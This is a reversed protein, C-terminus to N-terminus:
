VTPTLGIRRRDAATHRVWRVTALAIAAEADALDDIMQHSSRDSSHTNSGRASSGGPCQSELVETDGIRRPRLVTRQGRAEVASRGAPCHSRLSWAVFATAWRAGSPLRLFKASLM